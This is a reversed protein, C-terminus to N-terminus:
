KIEYRKKISEWEETWDKRYKNYIKDDLSGKYSTLAIEYELVFFISKEITKEENKTSFFDKFKEILQNLKNRFAIWHVFGVFIKVSIIGQIINILFINDKIGIYMIILMLIFCFLSKLVMSFYMKNAISLTFFCNEYCNVLMKYPGKELNDNSYYNKTEETLYKSGLSNDIFGKRRKEATTPYLIIENYLSLIFYLIIIILYFCYFIKLYIKDININSVGSCFISIYLLINEIKKSKKLFKYDREYPLFRNIKQINM